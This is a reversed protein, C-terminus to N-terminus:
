RGCKIGNSGAVMIGHCANGYHPNIPQSVQNELNELNESSDDTSNKGCALIVM